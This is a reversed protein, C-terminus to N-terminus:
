TSLTEVDLTINLNPMDECGIGEHTLVKIKGQDDHGQFTVVEDVVFVVGFGGPNRETYATGRTSAPVVMRDGPNPM